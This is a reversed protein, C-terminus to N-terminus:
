WLSSIFWILEDLSIPGWTTPSTATPAALHPWLVLRRLPMLVPAELLLRIPAALPCKPLVPAATTRIPWNNSSSYDTSANQHCGTDIRLAKDQIVELKALHSPCKSSGSPLAYNLIPRVIAKYTAVLTETMFCWNLGALTKMVNLARSARKCRLTSNPSNPTLSSCHWAINRPLLPWNSAIQGGWLLFCLQNARAETEVISPVSAQMTFDDAYSMMDLDPIPCCVCLQELPSHLHCIGTLRTGLVEVISPLLLRELIKVALFLMSIPSYKRGQDRPKGAKLIPIIVSKKWIAPIDIWAVSLNFLETLFALGHEGLHCLQLMTLGDTVQATSSGAKSIAMADGREDFLRYSPDVRHHCYLDRILTRLARDHQRFMCHIAQQLNTCNGELQLPPKGWLRRAQTSSVLLVQSQLATLPNWSSIYKNPQFLYDSSKKKFYECLKINIVLM